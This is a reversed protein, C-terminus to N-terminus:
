VNTMLHIFCDEISPVIQRIEINEIGSKKLESLLMDSYANNNIFTIHVFQGFLHSSDVFALQELVSQLRYMNDARVEYIAYNFSDVIGQPTDIQMFTGSQILAVRDCLSAEDMYPTSVIITIGSDKVTKLMTWLEARSVVDVGTTPEDLILVKPRHILSCCLALKQKMGGSLKGAQRKKFPEIQSYIDKIFHYNEEVTSGYVTAFFSLNEEITLDTYLSFKGPMYGILKRIKSYDKVVDFGELLATGSTPLLMTALIRLLSTKGAGDSGILGFLEGSRVDLSVNDLAVVDGYTKTLNQIKISSSLNVLFSFTLFKLFPQGFPM